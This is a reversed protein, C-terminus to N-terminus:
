QKSLLRSFTSNLMKLKSNRGRKRVPIRTARHDWAVSGTFLCLDSVPCCFLLPSSPSSGKAPAPALPSRNTDYLIM